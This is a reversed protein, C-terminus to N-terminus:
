KNLFSKAMSVSANFTETDIQHALWQCSLVKQIKASNENQKFFDKNIKPNVSKDKEGIIVMRFPCPTIIQDIINLKIKEDILMAPNFLLCPINQNASLYYALFGGLSSGVLFELKEKEIIQKLIFFADKEKRYDLHLAFTEFDHNELIKLKEKRPESDLGHIYLTKM